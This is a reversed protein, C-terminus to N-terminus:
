LLQKYLQTLSKFIALGYFSCAFIKSKHDDKKTMMVMTIVVGTAVLAVLVTLMLVVNAAFVCKQRAVIKRGNSNGATTTLPEYISIPIFPVPFPKDPPSHTCSQEDYTTVQEPGVTIYDYVDIIDNEDEQAPATGELIITQPQIATARRVSMQFTQKRSDDQLEDYTRDVQPTVSLSEYRSSDM